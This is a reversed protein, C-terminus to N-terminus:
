PNDRFGQAVLYTEASEKRSAAPKAHRVQAFRQKLTALMVKEAGGQFVKCVFTGGPALVELAFDLAAEALAVTRIHDTTGHGTTPAAMDSLVLDVPGGLTTRIRGPAASDLFDLTLIEAGPVPAMELVDVALVRGGSVRAVAVQTWGGPAAGLDLVRTGKKLLRFREDLDTLKFAARSRWGERKAAAVYPDNLQRQLWAKSSTTRGKATKVKTAKQRRGGFDSM